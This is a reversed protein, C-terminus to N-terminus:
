ANRENEGAFPEGCALRRPRGNRNVPLGHGNELTRIAPFAREAALAHVHRRGRVDDFKMAGGGCFHRGSRDQRDFEFLFGNGSGHPGIQPRVVFLWFINIQVVVSQDCRLFGAHVDIVDLCGPVFSAGTEHDADLHRLFSSHDAAHLLPM